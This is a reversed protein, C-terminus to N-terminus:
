FIVGAEDLPLSAVKQGCLTLRVMMGLIANASLLRKRSPTFLLVFRRHAGMVRNSESGM